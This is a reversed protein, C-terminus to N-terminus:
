PNQSTSSAMLLHQQVETMELIQLNLWVCSFNSFSLCASTINSMHCGQNKCLTYLQPMQSPRGISKLSLAIYPCLPKLFVCITQTKDQIHFSSFLHVQHFHLLLNSPRKIMSVVMLNIIACCRLKLLSNHIPIMSRNCGDSRLRCSTSRSIFSGRVLLPIIGGGSEAMQVGLTLHLQMTNSSAIVDNIQPHMCM